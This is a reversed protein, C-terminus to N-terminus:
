ARGNAQLKSWDILGLDVYGPMWDNGNGYLYGNNGIREKEDM